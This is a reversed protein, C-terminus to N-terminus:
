EGVGSAGSNRYEYTPEPQTGYNHGRRRPNEHCVLYCERGFDGGTCVHKGAHGGGPHHGSGDIAAARIQGSLRPHISLVLGCNVIIKCM